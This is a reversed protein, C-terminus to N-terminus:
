VGSGRATSLEAKHRRALERDPEEPEPRSLYLDWLRVANTREGNAQHELARLYLREHIPLFSEVAQRASNHTPEHRIRRFEERASASAGARDLVLAFIYRSILKDEQPADAASLHAVRLARQLDGELLFVVSGMRELRWREVDGVEAAHELDDGARSFDGMAARAYARWYWSQLPAAEGRRSSEAIAADLWRVARGIRNQHREVVQDLDRELDPLWGIAAAELIQEQAAQMLVEPEGPCQAARRRWLNETVSGRPAAGLRVALAKRGIDDCARWPRAGARAWATPPPPKAPTWAEGKKGAPGLVLVVALLISVADLM